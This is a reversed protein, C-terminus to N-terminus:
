KPQKFSESLADTLDKLDDKTLTSITKGQDILKTEDTCSYGTVDPSREAKEAFEDAEERSLGYLVLEEGYHSSSFVFNGKRHGDVGFFTDPTVPSHPATIATLFQGTEETRFLLEGFATEKQSSALQRAFAVTEEEEKWVHLVLSDLRPLMKKFLYLLFDSKEPGLDEAHTRTREFIMQYSM